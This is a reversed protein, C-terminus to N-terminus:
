APSTEASHIAGETGDYLARYQDYREAYVDRTRPDPHYSRPALRVTRAVAEAADSFVGAALGALIAAGAATPEASL